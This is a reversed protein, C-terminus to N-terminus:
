SKTCSYIHGEDLFIHYYDNCTGCRLYMIDEERNIHETQNKNEGMDQVFQKSPDTFTHLKLDESNSSESHFVVDCECIECPGLESYLKMIEFNRKDSVIVKREKLEEYDYEYYFSFVYARM